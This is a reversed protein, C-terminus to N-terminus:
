LGEWYVASGDRDFRIALRGDRLEWAAEGSGVRALLNLVIRRRVRARFAPSGDLADVMQQLQREQEATLHPMIRAAM